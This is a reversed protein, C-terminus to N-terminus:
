FNLLLMKKKNWIQWYSNIFQIYEFGKKFGPKMKLDLTIVNGRCGDGTVVCLGTHMYSLHLILHQEQATINSSVM